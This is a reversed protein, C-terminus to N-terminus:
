KNFEYTWPHVMHFCPTRPLPIVYGWLFALLLVVRCCHKFRLNKIKVGYTQTLGSGPARLQRDEQVRHVPEPTPKEATSRSIKLRPSLEVQEVTGSSLEKQLRGEHWASLLRGDLWRVGSHEGLPALLKDLLM